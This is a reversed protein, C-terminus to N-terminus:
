NKDLIFRITALVRAPQAVGNRHAPKYRFKRFATTAAQLLVKHEFREVRIDTVSGDVGVLGSLVVEGELRAAAAAEPYSPKAEVILQPETVVDAAPPSPVVIPLRPFVELAGSDVSVSPPSPPDGDASPQSPAPGAERDAPQGGPQARTTRPPPATREPVPKVVNDLPPGTPKTPQESEDGGAPAAAPAPSTVEPSVTEPPQAIWLAAAAILAAVSALTTWVVRPSVRRSPSATAIDGAAPAASLSSELADVFAGASPWREAPNKATAKYIADMWIAPLGQDVPPPLPQHVQQLLVAMPSDGSFPTRGLLMEYAVIGLAYIDCRHDVRQGLAQEPAMYHPTGTLIGTRTLRNTSEMLQALGFDAVSATGSRDLLINAPKIDRHVVGFAHAYDLAAAVQKLLQVAELPPLRRKGLLVSLNDGALLRMSMWPVGAEIGTAYIPVINPHELRAALRAEREFRRGFTPDHLFEAPLVKLAVSRDLTTDLAEYVAGMGGRGLPRRILFPGFTTGAPIGEVEEGAM